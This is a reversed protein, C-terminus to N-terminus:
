SYTKAEFVSPAEFLLKINLCKSGFTNPGMITVDINVIGPAINVSANRLKIPRPIAAGSAEKPEKTFSPKLYIFDYGYKNIM